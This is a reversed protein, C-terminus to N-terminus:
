AALTVSRRAKRAAAGVLVEVAANSIRKATELAAAPTLTVDVDSPGQVHVALGEAEAESPEDHVTAPPQAADVRGTVWDRALVMSTFVQATADAVRRAQLKAIGSSAVVATRDAHLPGLRAVMARLAEAVNLPQARSSRIDIIFSTPRGSLQLEVLERRLAVEYSFVTDLSWTGTRTVTLLPIEPELKFQFLRRAGECRSCEV